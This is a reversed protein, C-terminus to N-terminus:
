PSRLLSCPPWARLGAAAGAPDNIYENLKDCFEQDKEDKVEQLWFFHDKTVSSGAAQKFKMWILRGDECQKVISFRWEDPFVTRKFDVASSIRDKWQLHMLGTDDRMLQLMGRRDVPKLWLKAGGEREENRMM